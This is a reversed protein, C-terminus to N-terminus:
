RGQQQNLVIALTVGIAAGVGILGPHVLAAFLVGFIVSCILGLVIATTSFTTKGQHSM